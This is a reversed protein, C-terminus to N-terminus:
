MRDEIKELFDSYEDSYTLIYEDLYCVKSCGDLLVWYSSGKFRTDRCVSVSMVRGGYARFRHRYEDRISVRNGTKFKPIDPEYYRM